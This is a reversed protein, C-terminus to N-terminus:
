ISKKVSEFLYASEDGYSIHENAIQWSRDGLPANQFALVVDASCRSVQHDLVFHLCRSWATVIISRGSWRITGSLWRSPVLRSCCVCVYDGLDRGVNSQVKATM